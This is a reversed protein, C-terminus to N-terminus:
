SYSPFSCSRGDRLMLQTLGLGFRRTRLLSSYCIVSRIKAPIILLVFRHRPMALVQCDITNSPVVAGLVGEARILGNKFSSTDQRLKDSNILLM